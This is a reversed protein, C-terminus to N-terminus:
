TFEKDITDSFTGWHQYYRIREDQQKVLQFITNLEQINNIISNITEDSQGVIQEM